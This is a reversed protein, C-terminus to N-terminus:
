NRLTEEFVSLAIKGRDIIPFFIEGMVSERSFERAFTEEWTKEKPKRERACITSMPPFNIILLTCWMPSLQYLKEILGQNLRFDVSLKLLAEKPLVIESFKTQYWLVGYHCWSRIGRPFNLHAGDVQKSFMKRTESAAGSEPSNRLNWLKSREWNDRLPLSSLLCKRMMCIELRFFLKERSLVSFNRQSGHKRQLCVFVNRISLQLTKDCACINLSEM